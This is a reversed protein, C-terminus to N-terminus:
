VISFALKEPTCYVRVRGSSSCERNGRGLVSEGNGAKVEVEDPSLEYTVEELFYKRVNQKIWNISM